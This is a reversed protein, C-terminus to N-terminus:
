IKPWTRDQGIGAFAQHPCAFLSAFLSIEVFTRGLQFGELAGEPIQIRSQAGSNILIEARIQVSDRLHLYRLAM